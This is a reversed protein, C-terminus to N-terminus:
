QFVVSVLFNNHYITSLSWISLSRKYLRKNLSKHNKFTVKNQIHAEDRAEVRLELEVNMRYIACGVARKLVSRGAGEVQM